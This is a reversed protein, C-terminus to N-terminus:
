KHFFITFTFIPFFKGGQMVSRVRVSINGAIVVSRIFKKGKGTGVVARKVVASEGRERNTAVAAALGFGLKWRM